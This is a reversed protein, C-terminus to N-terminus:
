ELYIKKRMTTIMTRIGCIEGILGVVEIRGVANMRMM